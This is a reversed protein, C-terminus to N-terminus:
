AAIAVVSTRPARTARDRRRAVRNRVGPRERRGHERAVFYELLLLLQLLM